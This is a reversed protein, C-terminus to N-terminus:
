TTLAKKITNYDGKYEWYILRDNTYDTLIFNESVSKIRSLAVLKKTFEQVEVRESIEKNHTDFGHIIVHSGLHLEIFKQSM